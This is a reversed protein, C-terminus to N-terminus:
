KTFYQIFIRSLQKNYQKTLAVRLLNNVDKNKAIHKLVIESQNELIWFKDFSKETDFSDLNLIFNYYPYQATIDKIIQKGLLSNDKISLIVEVLKNLNERLPEGIGTYPSKAYFISPIETKEFISSFFSLYSDIFLKSNVVNGSIVFQYYLERNFKNKLENQISMKYEDSKGKDLLRPLVKLIGYRPKQISIEIISNVSERESDQFTYNKEELTRLCNTLLYGDYLNERSILVKVLSIIEDPTFLNPKAFLPHALLSIDHVNFDLKKIFYTIRGLLKSNGIEIDLYTLLICLNEFIRNVKRRLDPNKTRNNFYCIESYLFDVNEKSFFNSLAISFYDIKSKYPLKRVDNRQFFGLLKNSNCHHLSIQVLFDDFADLHYSHETKMSFSIICSEIVKEFLLDSEGAANTVLWNGDFFNTYEAISAILKRIADVTNNITYRQKFDKLKLYTEDISQAYSNYLSNSALSKLITNKEDSVDLTDLIIELDPYKNKITKFALIKQNYKVFFYIIPNEGKAIKEIEIYLEIAKEYNGFMFLIYATQMKDWLKSNTKYNNLDNLTKIFNLKEFSCSICDCSNESKLVTSFEEENNRNYINYILNERLTEIIKIVKKQVEKTGKFLTRDKVSIKSDININRFFKLIETNTTHLAFQNYFTSTHRNEPFATKDILRWSIIRRFDNFEELCTYLKDVIPFGKIKKYLELNRNEFIQRTPNKFGGKIQRINRTNRIEDTKGIGEEIRKNIGVKAIGKFSDFKNEDRKNLKFVYYDIRKSGKKRNSLRWTKIIEQASFFYQVEGQENDTHLLAFFDTKPGDEDTVYEKRIIVENRNEFYKSQIIAYVFSTNDHLEAMFDRGEIDPEIKHVIFHDLLINKTRAEGKKGHIEQKSVKVRWM